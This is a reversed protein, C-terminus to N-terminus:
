NNKVVVGTMMDAIHECSNISKELATLLSGIGVIESINSADTNRSYNDHMAEIFIKDGEEEADNVKVILSRLIKSKKFNPFEVCADYLAETAKVVTRMMDVCADTVYHVNYVYMRMLIADLDDVVEDLENSLSIIDEREIPTVFDANLATIIDHKIKDCENEIKHAEMYRERAHEVSAHREPDKKIELNKEFYQLLIKALEIANKSVEVFADFYNFKKKM